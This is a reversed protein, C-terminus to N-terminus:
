RIGPIPGPLPFFSFQAIGWAGGGGLKSALKRMANRSESELMGKPKGRQAESEAKETKTFCM